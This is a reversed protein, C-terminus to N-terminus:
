SNKLGLTFFRIKQLYEDPNKIKVLSNEKTHFLDYLRTLLFRLSAGILAIKLFEQENKELKRIKEYGELIANFKAQSFNNNEDFCWANIAVALDYIFSDNASFYFDIVGSLENNQNFFVNDPFLDTHVAGSPLEQIWNKELFDLYSKIEVDLDKKYDKISVAIQNFLNRWGYIGLDNKRSGIFNAAALHLHALVQGVEFCHKNTINLYYGDERPKLTSGDLFTVISAPKGNIKDILAGSNNAIPAPCCIGEKAFHLKLNMFFPLEDKKIRSEFITLIFKGSTTVIIFNSNDIGDIIEQFSVLNGIQYNKLFEEINLSTLKTYVAM